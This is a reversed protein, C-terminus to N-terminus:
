TRRSPPLVSAAYSSISDRRAAQIAGFSVRPTFSQAARNFHRGTGRGQVERNPGASSGRAAERPKSNSHSSRRQLIMVCAIGQAECEPFEDAIGHVVVVLRRTYHFQLPVSRAVPDGEQDAVVTRSNRVALAVSQEAKAARDSRSVVAGRPIPRLMTACTAAKSLWLADDRWDRRERPVVTRTVHGVRQGNSM